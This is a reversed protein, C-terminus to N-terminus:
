AHVLNPAVAPRDLALERTRAPRGQGRWVWRGEGGEGEVVVRPHRSAAVPVRAHRGQQM